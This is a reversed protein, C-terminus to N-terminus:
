IHFTSGNPCFLFQGNQVEKAIWKMHKPDMTDYKSGIVLTPVAITKSDTKVDWNKLLM